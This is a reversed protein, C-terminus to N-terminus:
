ASVTEDTYAQALKQWAADQEPKFNLYYVKGKSADGAASSESKSDTNSSSSSGCGALASVSMLGALALASIRTINKRKM